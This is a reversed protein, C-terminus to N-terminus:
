AAASGVLTRTVAEVAATIGKATERLGWGQIIELSAHGLASLRAPEGILRGLVPELANVSRHDFVEGNVGPRVLDPGCGVRDSAIIPLSFNMAENVVLGWPEHRSPLVFLDAAAYALPM